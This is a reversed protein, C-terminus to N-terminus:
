RVNDNTTGRETTSPQNNSENRQNSQEKRRLVNRKLAAELRKKRESAKIEGLKPTHNM